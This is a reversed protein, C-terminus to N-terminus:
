EQPDEGDGNLARLVGILIVFLMEGFLTVAIGAVFPNVYM